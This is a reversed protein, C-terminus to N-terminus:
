KKLWQKLRDFSSVDKAQESKETQQEAGEIEPAPSQAENLNETLPDTPALELDPMPPEEEAEQIQEDTITTFVGSEPSQQRLEKMATAVNIIGADMAGIVSETNTKGITARETASIQWLPTFAFRMDTPMAKGYMSRYLVKLIKEMPNRLKKNQQSNINDYYMRLDSEGTSNLGAPSQGFLRVLPIGCAGSIQQGFQILMDSLGSFSYSQTAFTDKGDLLTIGENTQLMRMYEFQQLLAEEAKGGSSLIQRLGDVQVTRLYARNVLNAASLTTTDFSVLRDHLREIVSAGWMWETIAQFFPLPIGVQRIIRSHHVIVGSMMTSQAKEPNPAMTNQIYDQSTIITYYAPLGIDPGTQIVRTLDPMIQWRDYVTIGKFQGQGIREFDLPTSLDQGEIQLVGISGGYLRGWRVVDAVSGLIDLNSIEAQMDEINEAAENSTITIGARLMDDAVIDVLMGVIWSTRYAAELQMRNKTLNSFEYYGKSLVNANRPNTGLRSVFNEFGDATKEAQNATIEASKINSKGM